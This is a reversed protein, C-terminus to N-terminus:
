GSRRVRDGIMERLTEIGRMTFALTQEDGIDYVWLVGDEPEMGDSLQWLSDEGEGLIEAARRVTFVATIAAM